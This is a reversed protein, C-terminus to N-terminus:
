FPLLELCDSYFAWKPYSKTEPNPDRETAKGKFWVLGGNDLETDWRKGDKNLGTVKGTLQKEPETSYDPHEVGGITTFLKCKTIRVLDGPQPEYKVPVPAEDPFLQEGTTTDVNEPENLNAIVEPASDAITATPALRESLPVRGTRKPAELKPALAPEEPITNQDFGAKLQPVNGGNDVIEEWEALQASTCYVGNALPIAEGSPARKLLKRIPIKKYMEVRAGEESWAPGIQTHRTISPALVFRNYHAELQAKNMHEWIWEGNGQKMGIVIETLYKANLECKPDHAIVISNFEPEDDRQNWQMSDGEYLVFERFKTASKTMFAHERLGLYSTRYQAEYVDHGAARSLEGNKYPIYYFFNFGTPLGVNIAQAVAAVWSGATCAKFKALQQGSTAMVVMAHSIHRSIQALQIESRTAPFILKDRVAQQLWNKLGEPSEVANGYDYQVLQTNENM